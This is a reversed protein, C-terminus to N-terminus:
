EMARAQVPGLRVLAQGDRQSEYDLKIWHDDKAVDLV